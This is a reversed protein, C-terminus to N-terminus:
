VHGFKEVGPRLQSTRKCSRKFPELCFRSELRNSFKGPQDRLCCEKRGTKVRVM